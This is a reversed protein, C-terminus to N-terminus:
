FQINQQSGDNQCHGQNQHHNGVICSVFIRYNVRRVSAEQEMFICVTEHGAAHVPHFVTIINQLQLRSCLQEYIRVNPIEATKSQPCIM